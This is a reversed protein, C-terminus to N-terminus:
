NKAEIHFKDSLNEQKDDWRFEKGDVFLKRYGIKTRRGKDREERAQDRIRKQIERERKTLDSDIFITKGKLKRKEKLIKSKDTWEHMEIICKRNNIKTARKVNARVGLEKELMGEMMAKLQEEGKGETDVGTVILNNRVNVREFKELRKETEDLREVLEKREGKWELKLRNVEKWINEMDENGRKIQEKVDRIDNKIENIDVRIEDKIERMDKKINKQMEALMEKIEEMNESVSNEESQRGTPSRLTVKSKRFAEQEEFSTDHEPKNRKNSMM